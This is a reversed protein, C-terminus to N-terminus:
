NAKLNRLVSEKLLTPESNIAETRVFSVNLQIPHLLFMEFYLNGGSAEIVEGSQQVPPESIKYSRTGM